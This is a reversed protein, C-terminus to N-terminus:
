EYGNHNSLINGALTTEIFSHRIQLAHHFIGRPKPTRRSAAQRATACCLRSRWAAKTRALNENTRHRKTRAFATDGSREAVASTRQNAFPKKM